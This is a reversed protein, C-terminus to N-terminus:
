SRYLSTRGKRISGYKWYLVALNNCSSAYDPHEKGLVKERINKAELFLPEAKEYQTMNIYLILLIIVSGAYSNTGSSDKQLEEKAKSYYEIAKDMKKQDSFAKASDSYQKWLQSYQPSLKNPFLAYFIEVM